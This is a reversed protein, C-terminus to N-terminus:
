PKSRESPLSIGGPRGIWPMSIRSVTSSVMVMRAMAVDISWVGNGSHWCPLSGICCITPAVSPGPQRWAISFASPPTRPQVCRRSSSNLM